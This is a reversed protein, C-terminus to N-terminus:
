MVGAPLGARLTALGVRSGEVRWATASVRRASILWMAAVVPLSGARSVSSSRSCVSVAQRRAAAAARARLEEAPRGAAQWHAAVEAVLAEDGLARLAQATREHLIAREGPVLGGTV